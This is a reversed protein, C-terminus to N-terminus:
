TGNEKSRGATQGPASTDIGDSCRNQGRPSDPRMRERFWDASFREVWALLPQLHREYDANFLEWRRLHAESRFLNM